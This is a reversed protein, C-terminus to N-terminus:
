SIFSDCNKLQLRFTLTIELLSWNSVINWYRWNDIPAFFFRWSGPLHFTTLITILPLWPLEILYYSTFLKHLLFPKWSVEYFPNFAIDKKNNSIEVRWHFQLFACFLNQMSSLPYPLPHPCSCSPSVAWAIYACTFLHIIIIFLFLSPYTSFIL